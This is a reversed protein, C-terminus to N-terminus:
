SELEFRVTMVKSADVPRGDRTAPRFRWKSVAQSVTVRCFAESTASLCEAATVRGDAAISVRVTAIGELGARREGPPYTPQLSGAYRPDITAEVLQPQAPPDVRVIEGIPIPPLSPLPPVPMIPPLTFDSTATSLIPTSRSMQEPPAVRGADPKPKPFASEPPPPPELPINTVVLSEDRAIATILPASFLLASLVGVNIAIAVALSGARIGTPRSYGDAYM